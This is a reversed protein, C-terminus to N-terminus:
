SRKWHVLSWSILVVAIGALWPTLAGDRWFTPLVPGSEPPGIMKGGTRRTLERLNSEDVGIGTFERAYRGPLTERDVERGDLQLLALRPQSSSTLPMEYRGPATQTFDLTTNTGRLTRLELKLPLGNLFREGADAADVM